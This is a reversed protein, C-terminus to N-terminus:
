ESSIADLDYSYNEIVTNALLDLCMKEVLECAKDHHESKLQIQIYKGARVDLVDEFGLSKLGGLITKGQPDNVTPRLTIYIKAIYTNPM